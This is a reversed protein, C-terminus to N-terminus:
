TNLAEEAAGDFHRAVAEENWDASSSIVVLQSRAPPAAETEWSERRGVRQYVSRSAPESAFHFVGKARVVHSPLQALAAMM